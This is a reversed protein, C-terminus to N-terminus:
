TVRDSGSNSPRMTAPGNPWVWSADKFDRGDPLNVVHVQGNEASRFLLDTHGANVYEVVSDSLRLM